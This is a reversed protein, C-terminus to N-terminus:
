YSFERELNKFFSGFTYHHFKSAIAAKSMQAVFNRPPVTVVYCADIIDNRVTRLPDCRQDKEPWTFAVHLKTIKTPANSERDQIKQAVSLFRRRDNESKYEEVLDLSTCVDCLILQQSDTEDFLVADFEAFM